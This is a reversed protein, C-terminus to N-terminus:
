TNQTMEHSIRNVFKVIVPLDNEHYEGIIGDNNLDIEPENSEKIKKNNGIGFFSKLNM